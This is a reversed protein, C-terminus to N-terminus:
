WGESWLVEGIVREQFRWGDETRVFRDRYGTGLFTTRGDPLGMPNRYYLIKREGGETRRAERQQEQEM